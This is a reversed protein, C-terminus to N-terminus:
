FCNWLRDDRFFVSLQGNYLKVFVIKHKWLGYSPGYGINKSQYITTKKQLTAFLPDRPWVCIRWFLTAFLALHQSFPTNRFPSGGTYYFEPWSRIGALLRRLTAIEVGSRSWCYCFTSEAWIILCVVQVTTNSYMRHRTEWYGNSILSELDRLIPRFRLYLEFCIFIWCYVTQNKPM